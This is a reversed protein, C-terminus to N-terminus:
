RNSSKVIPNKYNVISRAPERDDFGRILGDDFGRILGDVFVRILGDDFVRILITM